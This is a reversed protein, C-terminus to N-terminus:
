RDQEEDTLPRPYPLINSNKMLTSYNIEQHAFKRYHAKHVIPIFDPCRRMDYSVTRDTRRRIGQADMACCDDTMHISQLLLQPLFQKLAM